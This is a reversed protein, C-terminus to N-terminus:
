FCGNQSASTFGGILAGFIGVAFGIPGGIFAGTIGTSFASSGISLVSNASGCKDKPPSNNNKISDPIDDSWIKSLVDDVGRGGWDGGQRVFGLIGGFPGTKIGFLPKIWEPALEGSDDSSKNTVFAVIIPADGPISMNQWLFNEGTNQWKNTDVKFGNQEDYTAGWSALRQIWGSVSTPPNSFDDPVCTDSLMKPTFFGGPIIGKASGNIFSRIVDAEIPTLKSDESEFMTKVHYYINFYEYYALAYIDFKAASNGQPGNNWWDIVPKYRLIPIFLNFLLYFFIMLIIYKLLDKYDVM